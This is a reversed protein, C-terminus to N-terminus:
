SNNLNKHDLVKNISTQIENFKGESVDLFDICNEPPIEKHKVQYWVDYMYQFIADKTTDTDFPSPFNPNILLLSNMTVVNNNYSYLKVSGAEDAWECVEGLNIDYKIFSKQDGQIVKNLYIKLTACMQRFYYDAMWTGRHNDDGLVLTIHKEKERGKQVNIFIVSEDNLNQNFFLTSLFRRIDKNFTSCTDLIISHIPTNEPWCHIIEYIDGHIAKKGEKKLKNVIEKDDNVAVLNESVIGNKIAVDRDHDEYTPLYIHYGDSHEPPCNESVQEWVFERYEQKEKSNYDPRM